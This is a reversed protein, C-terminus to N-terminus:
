VTVTACCVPEVTYFPINVNHQSMSYVYLLKYMHNHEIHAIVYSGYRGDHSIALGAATSDSPEAIAERCRAVPAKQVFLPSPTPPTPPLPLLCPCHHLLSQMSLTPHALTLPHTAPFTPFLTSSPSNSHLVLHDLLPPPCPLSHFSPSLTTHPYSSSYHTSSM